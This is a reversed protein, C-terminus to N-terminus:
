LVVGGGPPVATGEVPARPAVALVLAAASDAGGTERGAGAGRTARVDGLTSSGAVGGGAVGVGGGGALEAAVVGGAGAGAVSSQRLVVAASMSRAISKVRRGGSLPM